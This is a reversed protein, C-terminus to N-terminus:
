TGMPEWWSRGARPGSVRGTASSGTSGSWRCTPPRSRSRQGGGDADFMPTAVTVTPQGTLPSRYANQVATHSSGDVFFPQDAVSTGEHGAFTSIRITGDLDTLYIEQADATQGVVTALAKRLRAEAATRDAGSTAPDLFDRASDGVGPMLGVFVVNRQQDDLWRDLADAKIGAVADLRDYVSATLDATARQYVAAGVVVVTITSLLLFYAVLRARLSRRLPRLLRNLM